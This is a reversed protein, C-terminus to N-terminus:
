IMKPSTEPIYDNAEQLSLFIFNISNKLQRMIYGFNRTIPCFINPICKSGLTLNLYGNIYGWYM